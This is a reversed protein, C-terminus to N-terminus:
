ESEQSFHPRAVGLIDAVPIHWGDLVVFAGTAEVQSLRGEVRRIMCRESLTLVVPSREAWRARLEWAVERESRQLSM